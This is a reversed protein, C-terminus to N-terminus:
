KIEISCGPLSGHDINIFVNSLFITFFIVSIGKSSYMRYFEMQILKRELTEAM